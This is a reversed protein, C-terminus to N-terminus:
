CAGIPSSGNRQLANATWLDASVGRAFGCYNLLLIDDSCRVDFGRGRLAFEFEDM